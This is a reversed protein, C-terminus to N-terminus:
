EDEAGSLVASVRTRLGAQEFGAVMASLRREVDGPPRHWDLMFENAGDEMPNRVFGERIAIFRRNQSSLERVEADVDVVLFLDDGFMEKPMRITSPMRSTMVMEDIADGSNARVISLLDSLLGYKEEYGVQPTSWHWRGLKAFNEFDRDEDFPPSPPSSRKVRGAYKTTELVGEYRAVTMGAGM